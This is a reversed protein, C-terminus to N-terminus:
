ADYEPVAAHNKKKFRQNHMFLDFRFVTFLVYVTRMKIPQGNEQRSTALCIGEQM